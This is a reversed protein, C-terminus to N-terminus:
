KSWVIDIEDRGGLATRLISVLEPDAGGESEFADVLMSTIAYDQDELSEEELQDMLFQLQDESISGLPTNTGKEFLNIM